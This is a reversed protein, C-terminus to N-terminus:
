ARSWQEQKPGGGLLVAQACEDVRKNYESSTLKHPVNSNTIVFECDGMPLPVTRSELTRCDILLAHNPEAMRSIFQDMIGCKVGAYVHEAKQGIKALDPGSITLGFTRQLAFATAIEL